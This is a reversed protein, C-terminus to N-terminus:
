FGLSFHMGDPRHFNGGWAFGARTFAAVFGASLTPKQGLRNSSANVDIAIGWSHASLLQRGRTARIVWSGNYTQLEALEAICVEAETAGLSSSFLRSDSVTGNGAIVFQIVVRGSLGPRRALVGEYCNRVQALNSRIVQRIGEKDLSGIIGRALGEEQSTSAPLPSVFDGAGPRFCSAPAPPVPPDAAEERAHTCAAVAVIVLMLSPNVKLM